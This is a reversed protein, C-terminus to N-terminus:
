HLFPLDLHEQNPSTNEKDPLFSSPICCNSHAMIGAQWAILPSQPAPLSPLAALVGKVTGPLIEGKKFYEQPINNNFISKNYKNKFTDSCRNPFINKFLGWTARLPQLAATGAWPLGTRVSGRLWGWPCPGRWLGCVGWGCVRTPHFLLKRWWVPHFTCTKQSKKINKCWNNTYSIQFLQTLPFSGRRLSADHSGSLNWKLIRWLRTNKKKGEPILYFNM